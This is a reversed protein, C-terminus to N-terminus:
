LKDRPRRKFSHFEAGTGKYCMWSLDRTGGMAENVRDRARLLHSFTGPTNLQTGQYRCQNRFQGQLWFMLEGCTENGKESNTHCFGSDYEGALRLFWFDSNMDLSKMKSRVAKLKFKLFSNDVNGRGEVGDFVLVNERSYQGEFAERIRPSKAFYLLDLSMRSSELYDIMEEKSKITAIEAAFDEEVKKRESQYAEMQVPDRPLPGQVKEEDCSQLSIGLAILALLSLPKSVNM